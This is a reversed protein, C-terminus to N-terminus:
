VQVHSVRIPLTTAAVTDILKKGQAIQENDLSIYRRRVLREYQGFSGLVVAVFIKGLEKFLLWLFKVRPNQFREILIHIAVMRGDVYTQLSASGERYFMLRESLVVFRTHGTTRCWLEADEARFYPFVEAYPNQRFWETSAAVTPHYFSGIAEFGSLQRTVGLRHGVIASSKDISYCASGVVTDAGERELVRVQRAVREPHMIDDADMRFFFRGRALAVMQNLRINLGRNQGDRVVRVRPDDIGEAFEFSGDNSGDDVLILEWDSYTQAFVSQLALSFFEGPNKFSIGITVSPTTNM